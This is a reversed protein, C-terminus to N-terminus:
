ADDEIYIAQCVIDYVSGCSCEIWNRILPPRQNSEIEAPSLGYAEVKWTIIEELGSCTGIINMKAKYSNKFVIGVKSNVIGMSILVNRNEEPNIECIIHTSVEGDENWSMNVAYIDADHFQWTLLNADELLVQM